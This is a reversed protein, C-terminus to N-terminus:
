NQQIAPNGAYVNNNDDFALTGQITEYDLYRTETEGDLWNTTQYQRATITYAVTGGSTWEVATLKGIEYNKGGIVFHYTAAFFERTLQELQTSRHQCVSVTVESGSKAVSDKEPSTSLVTGETKSEDSVTVTKAAFGAETIKAVAEDKGLGSVDPVRYSESVTMTIKADATIPTDVEPSVSLIVNETDDSKQTTYEVNNFGSKQMVQKADDIGMGVVNPVVRRMSIDLTVKSGESVRTGASPEMSIVIGEAEDSAIQETDIQFGAAKLQAKADAETLNSVDPVVKGGWIQAAYTGGLIAAMVAIIAVAIVVNRAPKSAERKKEAINKVSYTKQDTSYASGDVAPMKATIDTQDGQNLVPEQSTTEAKKTTDEKTASETTKAEELSESDDNTSTLDDAKTDKKEEFSSDNTKDVGALDATPAAKPKCTATHADDDFMENAIPAVSPLEYGCEDCFKASARNPTGCKPCIM